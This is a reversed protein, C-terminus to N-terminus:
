PVASSWGATVGSEFGDAFILDTYPAVSMAATEVCPGTSTVTVWYWQEFSPNVDITATTEGTSWTHSDYSETLSLTFPGYGATEIVPQACGAGATTDMVETSFESNVVNQNSAHPHTYTVVAFDYSTSSDLGTVPYTTTTKSETWGGSTWVGSGTPSSFVEYGGPDAQYTVADWSLWATHDGVSDVTVNEPALTQTDLGGPGLIAIVSPDDTHLANWYINIGTINTLSTLEFPIEGSLMNGGLSLSRLTTM